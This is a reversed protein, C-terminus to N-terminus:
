QQHHHFQQQQQQMPPKIYRTPQVQHPTEEICCLWHANGPCLGKKTQICDGAHYGVDICRGGAATCAAVQSSDWPQPLPASAIEEPDPKPLEGLDQKAVQEIVESRKIMETIGLQSQLLDFKESAVDNYESM